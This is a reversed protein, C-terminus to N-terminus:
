FRETTYLTRGTYDRLTWYLAPKGQEEARHIRFGSPQSKLVSGSGLRHSNEQVVGVVTHGLVKHRVQPHKQQLRKSWGLMFDQQNIAICLGHVLRSQGRIHQFMLNSQNANTGHRAHDGLGIAHAVGHAGHPHRHHHTPRVYGLHGVFGQAAVPAFTVTIRHRETFGIGGPRLNYGVGDLSFEFINVSGHVDKALLLLRRQLFIGNNGPVGNVKRLEIQNGFSNHRHHFFEARAPSGEANHRHFRAAPAGIAALEARHSSEKSVADAEAGIFAHDALQQHQLRAGFFLAALNGDEKNVVIEGDVYFAGLLQQAINDGGLSLHM